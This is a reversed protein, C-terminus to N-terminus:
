NIRIFGISFAGETGRVFGCKEAFIIASSEKLVDMAIRKHDEKAKVAFFSLLIKGIGRRRYDKSLYLHDIVHADPEKRVAIWGIPQGDYLVIHSEPAAWISRFKREEVDARWGGPIRPGLATNVTECYLNWCFEFDSQKAEVTTLEVKSM